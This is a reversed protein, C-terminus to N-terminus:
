HTATSIKGDVIRVIRQAQNAVEQEHTILVITRGDANLQHFIKMVEESAKSDLNGTPEDALIIEPNNILARAIAVRQQEGGSMESPYHNMRKELGVARLVEEASSGNHQGNDDGYILPLEVNEKATTRPLLHFSQFVFGIKRNRIQALADDSFDGVEGGDLVYSGSCARDLLGMINMLTSKGSGSAGVVAVFSGKEIELSVGDLAKVLLGAAGRRTATGGDKKGNKNKGYIKEINELKIM